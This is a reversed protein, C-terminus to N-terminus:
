IMRNQWEVSVENTFYDIFKVRVNDAVQLACGTTARTLNSLPATFFTDEYSYSDPTRVYNQLVCIAKVIYEAFDINVDLPRYLIHWKNCM